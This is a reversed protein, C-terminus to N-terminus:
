KRYESGKRNKVKEDTKQQSERKKGKRDIKRIKYAKKRGIKKKENEKTKIEDNINENTKRNEKSANTPILLCNIRHCFRRM